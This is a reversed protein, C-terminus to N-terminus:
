PTGPPAEDHMLEAATPAPTVPWFAMLLISPVISAALLLVGTSLTVHIGAGYCTMVIAGVIVFWLAITRRRTLGTLM